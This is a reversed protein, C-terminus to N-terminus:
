QDGLVRGTTNKVREITEDLWPSSSQLQKIQLQYNRIAQIMNIVDVAPLTVMDCAQDNASHANSDDNQAQTM